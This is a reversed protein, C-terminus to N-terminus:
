IALSVHLVVSSSPFYKILASVAVKSREVTALVM